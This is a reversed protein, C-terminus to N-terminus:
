KWVYSRPGAMLDDTVAGVIDNFDDDSINQNELSCNGRAVRALSVAKTHARNLLIDRSKAVDVVGINIGLVQCVALLTAISCNEIEGNLMRSVTARSVKALRALQSVSLGLSRRQAEIQQVVEVGM